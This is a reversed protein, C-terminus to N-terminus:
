PSEHTQEANFRFTATTSLGAFADGADSPFHAHFCLVENTGGALVRDGADLGQSPDGFLPAGVTSGLPGPGYIVTGSLDFGADTCSTVGVKITLHMEAALVNETTESVGAYRLELSGDNSVTLPATVVDGADMNTLSLLASTPSTSIDLDGTSFTNDPVTAVDTFIAAVVFSGVSVLSLAMILLSRRLRRRDADVARVAGDNSTTQRSM